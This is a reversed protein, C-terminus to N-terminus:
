LNKFVIFQPFLKIAVVSVRIGTNTADRVAEVLKDYKPDFTMTFACDIIRGPSSQFNCCFFTSPTSKLIRNQQIVTPMKEGKIQTGFDIKLVDDYQLVTKDGGNPTWHAACHNLSLGTPFGLGAQLGNEKILKRSIGELQESFTFYLYNKIFISCVLSHSLM